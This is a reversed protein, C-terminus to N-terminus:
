AQRVGRRFKSALLRMLGYTVGAVVAAGGLIPGWRRAPPLDWCVLENDPRVLVARGDPAPYVMWGLNGETWFSGFNLAGAGVPIHSLETGTHLDALRLELSGWPHHDAPPIKVPLWQAIFELVPSPTPLIHDGLLVLRDSLFWVGALLRPRLASLDSVLRGDDVAYVALRRPESGCAFVTFYRGKPALRTYVAGPNLDPLPQSMPNKELQALARSARRTTRLSGGPLDYLCIELPAVPDALALTNGDPTFAATPPSAVRQYPITCRTAGTASDLVHVTEETELALATGDSSSGALRTYNPMRVKWRQEGSPAYSRLTHVYSKGAGGTGAPIDSDLDAVVISHGDPSFMWNDWGHTESELWSRLIQAQGTHPDFRVLEPQNSGSFRWKRFAFATGEATFEVHSVGGCRGLGVYEPVDQGTALDLVRGSPVLAVLRGDPSFAAPLDGETASRVCRPHPALCHDLICTTILYAATAVLALRTNLSLPRLGAQLPCM